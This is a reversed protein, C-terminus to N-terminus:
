SAKLCDPCLFEIQIGYNKLESEYIKWDSDVANYIPPRDPHTLAVAVFKRDSPDFKALEPDNPFEAFQNEAVSTIKILECRQRNAYNVLVWKLFADGPGPQGSQSVKNKYEKIINWASDLVLISDDGDQIQRLFKACDAICALDAQPCDRANAAILVNTDVIAKM